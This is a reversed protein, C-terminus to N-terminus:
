YININSIYVNQFCEDRLQQQSLSFTSYCWHCSERLTSTVWSIFEGVLQSRFKHPQQYQQQKPSYLIFRAYLSVNLQEEETIRIDPRKRMYSTVMSSIHTWLVLPKFLLHFVSSSQSQIQFIFLYTDIPDTYLNWITIVCSALFPLGKSHSTNNWLSYGSMSNYLLEHLLQQLLRVSLNTSHVM